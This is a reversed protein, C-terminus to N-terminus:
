KAQRLNQLDEFREREDATLHEPLVASVRVYMDGREKKRNLKPMGLGRLRFRTQNQTEPPIDLRITKGPTKVEINGGLLLTYIDVPVSFQLDDGRREYDPDSAM